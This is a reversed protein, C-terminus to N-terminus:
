GSSSLSNNVALKVQSKLKKSVNITQQNSLTLVGTGTDNNTLKEVQTLNVIYSRHVQMFKNDPLIILLEKLTARKIYQETQCFIDVYNGSSKIAYIEFFPITLSLGLHEVTLTQETNNLTVNNEIINIYSTSVQELSDSGNKQEQNPENDPKNNIQEGILNKQYFSFYWLLSILSYTVGYKPILAVVNTMVQQTNAPQAILVRFFLALSIIIVAVILSTTVPPFNKSFWYLSKLTVPTLLLWMGGNKVGGYYHIGFTM